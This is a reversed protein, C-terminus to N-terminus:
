RDRDSVKYAKLIGPTLGGIVFTGIVGPLGLGYWVGYPQKALLAIIGLCLLILSAAIMCILLAIVTKKFKGKPAFTGAVAGFIGGFVGLLAGPIWAYMNPNFWYEDM